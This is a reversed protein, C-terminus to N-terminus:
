ELTLTFPVETPPLCSGDDCTMFEVAGSVETTGKPVKVKQIFKVKDSYKTITMEFLEDFGEKKKGMEEMKGVFELQDKNDFFFSTAIPGEDSELYQSYIYWGRDVDATMILDYEQSSIKEIEFTWKVPMAQQAKALVSSLCIFICALLFGRM